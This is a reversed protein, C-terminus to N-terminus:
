SAGGCAMLCRTCIDEGAKLQRIAQRILEPDSLREAHPSDSVAESEGKELQDLLGRLVAIRDAYVQAPGNPEEKMSAVKADPPTSSGLSAQIAAIMESADPAVRPEFRQLITGDGGILFKTFNWKIKGAFPSSPGALREYLPSRNTGNVEIKDFMPFTVSFKRSCFEQIEENTGPEQGGFQNCPFGLVVLGRDKYKQYLAELGGYQRTLGCKSAVNVILLTKGKYQALTVEEGEITKLTMEYISNAAVAAAQALLLATLFTFIRM